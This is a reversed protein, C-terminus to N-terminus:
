QRSPVAGAAQAAQASIRARPVIQTSDLLPENEGCRGIEAGQLLWLYQRYPTKRHFYRQGALSLRREM